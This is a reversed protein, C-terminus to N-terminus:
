QVDSGGGQSVSPLDDGGAAEICNGDADYESVPYNPEPEYLEGDVVVDWGLQNTICTLQDFAEELLAAKRQERQLLEITELAADRITLIKRELEAIRRMSEKRSLRETM